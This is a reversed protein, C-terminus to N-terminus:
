YAGDGRVVAALTLAIVRLDRSLSQQEIYDREVALREDFTLAGRGFIQMPGTMGPKVVLRFRQDPGYRQVLELQEPRPGVLSMEGKLVNWLQPLEDLSWRRLFRGVRTTRPDTALKFAPEELRNLDVIEQLREEADRRMTRFKLMHFPVGKKGARQQIFLAPGESTLRIVLAIVLLMPTLAILLATSAAIDLLRKGLLSSRSVDWTHYAIVPLEAVHDLEVATGFVARAPPTVSLKIQRERCYPLLAAILPEDLPTTAVVVRDVNELWPVSAPFAEPDAKARKGVVDAHMDRFLAFKRSVAAAIPGDGIIFVREPPTVMRWLRRASARLATGGVVLVLWTWIRDASGLAHLGVLEAAVTLCATGALAWLVIRPFEDATLHRLSQHDRDYLGCLKALAVFIPISVCLSVAGSADHDVSAVCAAAAAVVVVDAAALMRRRLVDRPFRASGWARKKPHRDVTPGIGQVAPELEVEAM